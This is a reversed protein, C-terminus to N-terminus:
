YQIDLFITFFWTQRSIKSEEKIREWDIREEQRKTLM